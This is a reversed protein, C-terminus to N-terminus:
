KTLQGRIAGPPYIANHVNVYYNEPNKRIAKILERDVEAVGMSSGNTPAMLPVVVPGPSGPQAIHIHAALPTAIDEVYLEYSITGQGQNLYFVAWGSGDPDGPGPAEQAGTMNAYLPTGGNSVSKSTFGFFMFSVVLVFFLKKM